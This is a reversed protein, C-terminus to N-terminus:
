NRSLFMPKRETQVTSYSWTFGQESVLDQHIRQATLGQARKSEIVARWPNGHSKRASAPELQAAVLSEVLGQNGAHLIAPKSDVLVVDPGVCVEAEEGVAPDHVTAPKLDGTAGDLPEIGAHLNAPKPAAAALRVYRSVTERHVCLREAIARFSWGQADLSLIAQVDAMKLQNAM